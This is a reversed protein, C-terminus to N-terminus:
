SRSLIALDKGFDLLGAHLILHAKVAAKVAIELVDVVHHLGAPM